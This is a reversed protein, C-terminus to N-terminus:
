LRRTEIHCYCRAPFGFLSIMVGM